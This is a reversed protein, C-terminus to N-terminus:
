LTNTGDISNLFADLDDQDNAASGEFQAEDIAEHAQAVPTRPAVPVEASEVTATATKGNTYTALNAMVKARTEEDWPKYAFRNIDPADNKLWNLFEAKVGEDDTLVKGNFTIPATKGNFKSTTYNTYGAANTNITLEFTPAEFLGFPNQGESIDTTTAIETIKDHIQKGYKYIMTKGNLEPHQPDKIIQVLSYWNQKVQINKANEQDAASNSKRLKWYLDNIPCSKHENRLSDVYFGNQGNIDKPYAEWKELCSQPRGDSNIFPIFRLSARYIGDKADKQNPRYLDESFSGTSHKKNENLVDDASFGFLDDTLNAM